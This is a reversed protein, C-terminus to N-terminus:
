IMITLKIPPCFRLVRHFGSVMRNVLFGCCMYISKLLMDGGKSFFFNNAMLPYWTIGELVARSCNVYRLALM